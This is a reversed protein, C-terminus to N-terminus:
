CIRSALVKENAKEVDLRTLLFRLESLKIDFSVTVCKNMDIKPMTFWYILRVMRRSSVTLVM